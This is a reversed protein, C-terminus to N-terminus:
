RIDAKGRSLPKQVRLEYNWSIRETEVSLERVPNMRSTMPNGQKQSMVSSNASATTQFVLHGQATTFEKWSTKKKKASEGVHQGILDYRCCCIEFCCSENQVPLTM